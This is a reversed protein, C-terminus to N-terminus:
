PKGDVRQFPAQPDMITYSYPFLIGLRKLKQMVPRLRLRTTVRLMALFFSSLVHGILGLGVGVLVSGRFSGPIIVM